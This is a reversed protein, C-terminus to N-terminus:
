IGINIGYKTWCCPVRDSAFIIIEFVSSPRLCVQWCLPMKVENYFIMRILFYFKRTIYNQLLYPNSSLESNVLHILLSNVIPKDDTERGSFIHQKHKKLVLYQVLYMKLYPAISPLPWFNDQLPASIKYNQFGYITCLVSGRVFYPVM